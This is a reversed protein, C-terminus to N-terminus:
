HVKFLIEGTLDRYKEFLEQLQDKRLVAPKSLGLINRGNLYKFDFWKEDPYREPATEWMMPLYYDEVPKVGLIHVVSIIVKDKRPFEYTIHLSGSQCHPCKIRLLEQDWDSRLLEDWIFHAIGKSKTVSDFAFQKNCSNCKWWYSPM